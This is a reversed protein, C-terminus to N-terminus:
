KRTRIIQFLNSAIPLSRELNRPLNSLLFFLSHQKCSVFNLLALNSKQTGSRWLIICLKPYCIVTPCGQCIWRTGSPGLTTRDGSGPGGSVELSFAFGGLYKMVHLCIGLGMMTKFRRQNKIFEARDNVHPFLVDPVEKGLFKCLRVWGQKVNFELLNEKPVVRRVGENHERYFKKGTKPFDQLDVAPIIRSMADQTPLKPLVWLVFRHFLSPNLPMGMETLPWLTSMYSKYFADEPDALNLIIKAEPYASVLEPAFANAPLDTV